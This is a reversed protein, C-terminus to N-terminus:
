VMSLRFFSFSITFIALNGWIEVSHWANPWLWGVCSRTQAEFFSLPTLVKVAVKRTLFSVCLSTLRKDDLFCELWPLVM